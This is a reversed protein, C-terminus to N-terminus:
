SFVRLLLDGRIVDLYVIGQELTVLLYIFIWITIMNVTTFHQFLNDVVVTEVSVSAIPLKHLSATIATSRDRGLLPTIGRRAKACKNQECGSLFSM